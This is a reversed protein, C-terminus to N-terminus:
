YMREFSEKEFVKHEVVYSSTKPNEIKFPDSKRFARYLLSIPFLFLFFVLTLIINPVIFSLIMGLKMWAWEIKESLFDSFAGIVAVGFAVYLAWNLQTFMFIAIFGVAIVLITKSPNSKM